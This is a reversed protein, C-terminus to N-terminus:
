LIQSGRVCKRHTHVIWRRAAPSTELDHASEWDWLAMSAAKFRGGRKELAASM